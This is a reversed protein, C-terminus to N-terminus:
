KIVSLVVWESAYVLSTQMIETQSSRTVLAQPLDAFVAVSIRKVHIQSNKTVAQPFLCTHVKSLCLLASFDVHILLLLWWRDWTNFGPALQM